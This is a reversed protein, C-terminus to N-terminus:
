GQPKTYKPFRADAFDYIGSAALGVALGFVAVGFWRAFDPYMQALQYAVGAATGLAMSLLTLARGSVNLKKAFEVLGFVLVLFNIGNVLMNGM